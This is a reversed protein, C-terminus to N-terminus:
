KYKLTSVASSFHRPIESCGYINREDEPLLDVDHFIFCDWKSTEKMAENFGINMLLGRNFTANKVPEVIYIAYEIQQKNLFPHMHNLFLQLNMKRDRYPIVLAVKYRAICTKPKDHGGAEIELSKITPFTAITDEPFATLNPKIRTSISPPILPCVPMTIIDSSNTSNSTSTITTNLNNNSTSTTIEKIMLSNIQTIGKLTNTDIKQENTEGAIFIFFVKKIQKFSLPDVLM